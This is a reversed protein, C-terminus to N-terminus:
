DCLEKGRCICSMKDEIEGFTSYHNWEELSYQPVKDCGFRLALGKICSANVFNSTPASRSSPCSEGYTKFGPTCHEGKCQCMNYWERYGEMDQKIDAMTPMLRWRKMEVSTDIFVRDMYESNSCGVDIYINKFCDLPMDTPSDMPNYECDGRDNQVGNDSRDTNEVSDNYSDVNFPKIEKQKSKCQPCAPCDCQRLESYLSIFFFYVICCFLGLYKFVSRTVKKEFLVFGMVALLGIICVIVYSTNMQLLTFMIILVQSM